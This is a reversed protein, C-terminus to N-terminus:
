VYFIQALCASAPATDDTDAVGTSIRYSIGNKCNVQGQVVADQSLWGPGGPIIFTMVPVSSAPAVNVALSDYIKLYVAGVNPNIILFGYLEGTGVKADVAAKSAATNRHINPGFM